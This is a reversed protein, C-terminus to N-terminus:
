IAVYRRQPVVPLGILCTPATSLELGPKQLRARNAASMKVVGGGRGLGVVVADTESRSSLILLSHFHPFGRLHPTQMISFVLRQPPARQSGSQKGMPSTGTSRQNDVGGGV